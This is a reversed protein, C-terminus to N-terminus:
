GQGGKVRSSGAGSRLGGGLEAEEDGWGGDGARGALCGLRLRM